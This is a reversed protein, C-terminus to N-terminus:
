APRGATGSSAPAKKQQSGKAKPAPATKRARAGGSPASPTGMDIGGRFTAGDEMMVRPATLDGEVTASSHLVIQEGATLNGKVSGKVTITRGVISAKVEGEEGITVAHSRLVVSGEVQGEILLDEEGTIEGKLRIKQGVMPTSAAPPRPNRQVPGPDPRPSPPATPPRPTEEKKWM